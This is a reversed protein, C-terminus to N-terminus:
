TANSKREKKDHQWKQLSHTESKTPHRELNMVSKVSASTPILCLCAAHFVLAKISDCNITILEYQCICLQMCNVLVPNKCLVM